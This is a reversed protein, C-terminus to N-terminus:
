EAESELYGYPVLEWLDIYGYGSFSSIFALAIYRGAVAKNITVESYFDDRVLSTRLVYNGFIDAYDAGADPDYESDGVYFAFDKIFRNNKNTPDLWFDFDTIVYQEGDKHTDISLIKPFDRRNATQRSSYYRSTNVDRLGDFVLEPVYDGNIQGSTAKITWDKTDLPYVIPRDAKTWSATWVTDVGGDPVYASKFDIYKGPMADYLVIADEEPGIGRSEVKNGAKNFYRVKTTAMQFTSKSFTVVTSDGYNKAQRFSREAHSILWNDGYPSASIEVDLSKNNNADFNRVWFTYSRDELDTITHEAKGNVYAVDVSDRYNNWYLRTTKVAPDTPKDWKITVRQFGAIAQVNIAKAPYIRGGEVVFEKYVSDQKTCSFLVLSLSLLLLITKKM